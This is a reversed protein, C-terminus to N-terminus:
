RGIVGQDKRTKLDARQGAESGQRHGEHSYAGKDKKASKIRMKNSVYDEVQETRNALVLATSNSQAVTQEARRLRLGIVDAYGLIFWKKWTRVQSTNGLSAPREATAMERNCQLLLSTWMLMVLDIDSQFGVLTAGVPDAPKKGRMKSMFAQCHNAEAVRSLLTIKAIAYPNEVQFRHEVVTGRETAPRTADLMAEEIAYKTMLEQAKESFAKAEEPFQSSEAKALLARIRELMADDTM